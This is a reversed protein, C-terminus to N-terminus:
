GEFQHATLFRPRHGLSPYRQAKPGDSQLPNISPNIPSHIPPDFELALPANWVLRPGFGWSSM